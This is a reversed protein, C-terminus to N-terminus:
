EHAANAPKLVKGKLKGRANTFENANPNASVKKLVEPKKGSIKDLETKLRAADEDTLRWSCVYYVKKGTDEMRVSFTDKAKPGFVKMAADNAAKQQSQEVIMLRQVPKAAIAQSCVALLALLTIAYRM